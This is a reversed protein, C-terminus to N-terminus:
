AARSTPQVGSAASALHCMAGISREAGVRADETDEINELYLRIRSM